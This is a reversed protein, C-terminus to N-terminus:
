KQGQQAQQGQEKEGDFRILVRVLKTTRDLQTARDLKTTRSLKTTRGTAPRSM